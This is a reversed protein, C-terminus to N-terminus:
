GTIVDSAAAFGISFPHIQRQDTAECYGPQGAPLDSLKRDLGKAFFKGSLGDPLDNTFNTCGTGGLPANAM